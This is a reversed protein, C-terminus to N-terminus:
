VDKRRGGNQFRRKLDLNAKIMEMANEKIENRVKQLENWTIEKM